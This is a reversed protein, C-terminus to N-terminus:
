LITLAEEKAKKPRGVELFHIDDYDAEVSSPSTAVGDRKFPIDELHPFKKYNDAKRIPSLITKDALQDDDHNVM